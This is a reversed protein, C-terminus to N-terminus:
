HQCHQKRRHVAQHPPDRYGNSRNETEDMRNRATNVMLEPRGLHLCIIFSVLSLIPDPDDSMKKNMCYKGNLNRLTVSPPAAM